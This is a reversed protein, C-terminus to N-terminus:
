EEPEHVAIPETAIRIAAPKPYLLRLARLAQQADAWRRERIATTGPTYAGVAAHHDAIAGAISDLETEMGSLMSGVRAELAIGAARLRRDRDAQANRHAQEEAETTRVVLKELARCLGESQASQEQAVSLERQRSLLEKRTIEGLTLAERGASVHASAREEETRAAALAVEAATLRTRLDILTPSANFTATM